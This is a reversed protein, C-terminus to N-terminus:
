YYLSVHFVKVQTMASNAIGMVFLIIETQMFTKVRIVSRLVQCMATPMVMTLTKSQIQLVITISIFYTYLTSFTLSLIGKTLATFLFVM